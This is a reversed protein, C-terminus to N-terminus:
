FDSGFIKGRLIVVRIKKLDSGFFKGTLIM